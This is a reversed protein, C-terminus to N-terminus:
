PPEPTPNLYQAGKIQGVTGGEINCVGSVKNNTKLGPSTHGCFYNVFGLFMEKIIEYNYVTSCIFETFILEEINWAWIKICITRIKHDVLNKVVFLGSNIQGFISILFLKHNIVM